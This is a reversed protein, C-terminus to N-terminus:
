VGIWPVPDPGISIDRFSDSGGCFLAFSGDETATYFLAVLSPVTAVGDELPVDYEGELVLAIALPYNWPAFGLVRAAESANPQTDVHAGSLRMGRDLLHSRLSGWTREHPVELLDLDSATVQKQLTISSAIQRLLPATISM